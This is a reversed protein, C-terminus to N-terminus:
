FGDPSPSQYHQREYEDFDTKRTTRSSSSSSTSNQKIQPKTLSEYAEQVAVFKDENHPARDPHYKLALKRYASKVESKSADPRLGLVSHPTQTQGVVKVKFGFREHLMRRRSGFMTEKDRQLYIVLMQIKQVNKKIIIKVRLFCTYCNFLYTYTHTDQGGINIDRSFM